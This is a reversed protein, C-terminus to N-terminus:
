IARLEVFDADLGQRHIQFSPESRLHSANLAIEFPFIASHGVLQDLPLSDEEADVLLAEVLLIAVDPAISRTSPAREYVGKTETDRLVGWEIMSRVIRQAARTLTSREGWTRVLRRTLQALSFSGQLTLLKGASAAVDTFVPYTAIMMAWHLAVREDTSATSLQQAARDRLGLTGSPVDGWIHNLVTVTKGRASNSKDGSVVGELLNWVYERVEASSAGDAAQAAAADLWEIDLRRDFGITARRTM